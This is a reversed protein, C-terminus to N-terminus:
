FRHGLGFQARVPNADTSNTPHYRVDGYVVVSRNLAAEIGTTLVVGDRDGLVTQAGPRVIAYGAGAYINASNGIPVDYSLMPMAAEVNDGLVLAGRISVPSNQVDIRTQINRQGETGSSRSSGEVQDDVWSRSSGTGLLSGLSEGVNSGDVTAGLYSGEFGRPQAIAEQGSVLLGIIGGGVIWLWRIAM